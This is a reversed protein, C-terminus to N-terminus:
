DDSGLEFRPLDVLPSLVLPLDSTEYAPSTPELGVDGVLFGATAYHNLAVAQRASSRSNSGRWHSWFILIGHHHSTVGLPQLGGASLGPLELREAPAMDM